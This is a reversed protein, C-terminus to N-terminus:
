EKGNESTIFFRTKPPFLTGAWIAYNVTLPLSIAGPIHGAEFDKPARTDLLIIGEKDLEEASALPRHM